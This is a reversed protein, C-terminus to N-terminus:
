SHGNCGRCVSAYALVFICVRISTINHTVMVAEAFVRMALVSICVRISRINRTVLAAEAFVRMLLFMYVSV